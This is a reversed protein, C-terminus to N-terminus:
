SHPLPRFFKARIYIHIYIIVYICEGLFVIEVLIDPGYDNEMSKPTQGILRM